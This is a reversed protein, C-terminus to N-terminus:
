PLCFVFCFFHGEMLGLLHYRHPIGLLTQLVNTSPGIKLLLLLTVGLLVVVGDVQGPLLKAGGAHLTGSSIGGNISCTSISVGGVQGPGSRPGTSRERCTVSWNCSHTVQMPTADENNLVTKGRSENSGMFCSVHSVCLCVCLKNATSTILFLKVFHANQFFCCNVVLTLHCIDLHIIM